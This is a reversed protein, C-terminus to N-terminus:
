CIEFEKIIKTKEKRCVSNTSILSIKDVKVSGLNISKNEEVFQMFRANPQRYFRSLTINGIVINNIYKKDDPVRIEALKERLDLVFEQTKQNPYCKIGFSGPMKFLGDLEFGLGKHSNIYHSLSNIAEIDQQSFNPPNAIVRINQITIHLSEKIYYYQPSDIKQLPDTFLNTIKRKLEDPLFYVMALCIRADKEFNQPATVISVDSKEDLSELKEFVADQKRRLDSM